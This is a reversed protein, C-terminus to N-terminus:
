VYEEEEEFPISLQECWFEAAAGIMYHINQLFDESDHIEEVLKNFQEGTFKNNLHQLENRIVIKYADNIKIDAM